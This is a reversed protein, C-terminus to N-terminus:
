PYSCNALVIKKLNVVRDCTVYEFEIYDYYLICVFIESLRHNTSISSWDEAQSVLHSYWLQGCVRYKSSFVKRENIFQLRKNNLTTQNTAWILWALFKDYDRNKKKTMALIHVFGFISLLSNNPDYVLWIKALPNRASPSSVHSM